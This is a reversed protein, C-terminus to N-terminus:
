SVPKKGSCSQTTNKLSLGDIYEMILAMHGDLFDIFKIVNPNGLHSLEVLNWVERKLEKM